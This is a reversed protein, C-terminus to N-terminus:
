PCPAPNSQSSIAWTFTQTNGAADTLTLLLPGQATQPVTGGWGGSPDLQAPVGDLTAAVVGSIDQWQGAVQLGSVLPEYLSVCAQPPTNDIGLTASLTATEGAADEASISLAHMGDTFVPTNIEFAFDPQATVTQYTQGDMALTVTAGLSFPDTISGSVIVSGHAWSPLPALSLTLPTSAFSPPAAAGFLASSADAISRAYATIATANPGPLAAATQPAQAAAVQVIALAVGQRYAAVSLPLKGLQLTGNAGQGNLLGDNQLDAVWISTLDATTQSGQAAAWQSLAALVLGYRLSSNFAQGSAVQNLLVPETDAADFGFWNTFESDATAVALTQALGRTMLFHALSAVGTSVPTVAVNLTGGEQYSFMGSLTGSSVVANTAAEPYSGGTAIVTLPASLARLAVLFYGSDDTRTTAMVGNPGYVSVSAGAVPGGSIVYGGVYGQPLPTPAGPNGLPCGALLLSAMLLVYRIIGTKM